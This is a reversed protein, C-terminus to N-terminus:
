SGVELARGGSLAKVKALRPHFLLLDIRVARAPEWPRARPVVDGGIAVGMRRRLGTGENWWARTWCTIIDAERTM